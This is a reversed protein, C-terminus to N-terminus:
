LIFIKKGEPKNWIFFFNRFGPCNVGTIGLFNFKEELINLKSQM